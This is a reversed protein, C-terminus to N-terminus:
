SESAPAAFTFDDSTPPGFREPHILRGTREAMEPIRVGPIVLLQPDVWYVRDHAVAPLFPWASWPGALRGRRAGRGHSSTDIIVDPRLELAAELSLRVYTAGRDVVNVGGAARILEDVHSDPGAVYLPDRDVVFLVRRRSTSRGTARVRDLSEAMTRRLTAAADARGVRAGLRDVADLVGSWSRTDLAVVEIGLDRLREHAARSAAAETTVVVDTRLELIREVNPRDYSGVRPLAAARPPDRVYDGVGVVGDLADLRDLIEAAAPAVVVLRTGTSVPDPPSSGCGIGALALSTALAATRAHRRATDVAASM